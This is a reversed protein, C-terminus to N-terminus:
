WWFLPFRFYIQLLFLAHHRERIKCAVFGVEHNSRAWNPGKLFCQVWLRRPETPWSPPWRRRRSMAPMGADQNRAYLQCKVQNPSCFTWWFRCLHIESCEGIISWFREFNATRSIIREHFYRQQGARNSNYGMSWSRHVCNHNGLLLHKLCWLGFNRPFFCCFRNLKIRSCTVFISGSWLSAVALM